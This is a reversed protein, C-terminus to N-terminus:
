LGTPYYSEYRHHLYCTEGFRRYSNVMSCTTMDQFIKINMLVATLVQLISSYLHKTVSLRPRAFRKSPAHEFLGYIEFFNKRTGMSIKFFLIFDQLKNIVASNNNICMIIIYNIYIITIINTIFVEELFAIFLLIHRYSPSSSSGTEFASLLVNQGIDRV